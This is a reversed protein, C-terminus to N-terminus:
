DIIENVTVDFAVAKTGDILETVVFVRFPEDVYIADKEDEEPMWIGKSFATMTVVSVGFVGQPNLTFSVNEKFSGLRCFRGDSFELHDNSFFESYAKSFDNEAEVRVSPIIVNSVDADKLLREIEEWTSCVESVYLTSKDSLAVKFSAKGNEEKVAADLLVGDLIEKGQFNAPHDEWLKADILNRPWSAAVSSIAGAEQNFCKLDALTIPCRTGVIEKWAATANDLGERLKFISLRGDLVELPKSRAADYLESKARGNITLVNFAILAPDAPASPVIEPFNYKKSLPADGVECIRVAARITDAAYPSTVKNEDAKVFSSLLCVCICAVFMLFNKM